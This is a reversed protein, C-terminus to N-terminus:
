TCSFCIDLTFIVEDFYSSLINVDLVCHTSKSSSHSHHWFTMNSHLFIINMSSQLDYNSQHFIIWTSSRLDLKYPVSLDHGNLVPTWIGKSVLHDIHIVLPKIWPHFSSIPPHSFTLNMYSFSSIRPHIFTLHSQLLSSRCGHNITLYYLSSRQSHSFIPNM